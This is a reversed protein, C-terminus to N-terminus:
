QNVASATGNLPRGSKLSAPVGGPYTQSLYENIRDIRSQPLPHTSLMETGGSDVGRLIEMVKLMERPDYGIQAMLKLGWEDAQLEDGRSFKLQRLQAVYNAIATSRQSNTAVGTATVLSQYFAASALHQAAHRHVVHGIEHGLVGALQGETALKDYLAATIFVQGGPLSFANITQPDQLVHFDFSYPNQPLAAALQTGLQKVEQERADNAPEEGGMQATMEPASQLGLQVEQDPTLSIHQVEQTIPNTQRAFYYSIFGGVLIVGAFVFRMCGGAIPGGQPSENQQYSM